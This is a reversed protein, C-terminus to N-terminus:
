APGSMSAFAVINEVSAHNAADFDGGCTILALQSGSANNQLVRQLADPQAKPIGAVIRTIRFDSRAGQTADEILVEDGTRLEGLRNFVADGGAQTHGLLVAM